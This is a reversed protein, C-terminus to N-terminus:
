FFERPARRLFVAASWPLAALFPVYVFLGKGPSFLLGYLGLLLPNSFTEDARYGTRFPNGFRAFNYLAISALALAVPLMFAGLARRARPDRTVNRLAYWAFLPVLVVNTLRAAIALGLTAGALLADQEHAEARFSLLVYFTALLTFLAFPESWFEKAYVWAPTALGFLLAVAASVGRSFNLRRASLFVLAGALSTVVAVSLL